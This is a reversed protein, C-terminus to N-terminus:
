EGQLKKGNDLLEELRIIENKVAQKGKETILYQKKVPDAERIYDKQMLANLAGYLTGAGLKLRGNTMEKVKLMIGYGHLPSYLSLLIYYVAETLPQIKETEM